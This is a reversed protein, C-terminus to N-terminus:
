NGSEVSPDTFIWLVAATSGAQAAFKIWFKSFGGPINEIIRSPRFYLWDNTPNDFKIQILDNISNTGGNYSEVFQFLNGAVNCLSLPAGEVIATSLDFILQQFVPKGQFGVTIASDLSSQLTPGGTTIPQIKPAHILPKNEDLFLPKTTNLFSM